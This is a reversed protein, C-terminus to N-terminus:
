SADQNEKFVGRWYLSQNFATNVQRIDAQSFEYARVRSNYRAYWHTGSWYSYQFLPFENTGNLSVQYVGPYAPVTTYHFWPTLDLYM